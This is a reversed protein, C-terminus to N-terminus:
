FMAAEVQLYVRPVDRALKEDMGAYASEYQALKDRVLPVTEYAALGREVGEAVAQWLASLLDHLLTIGNVDTVTGHGPIVAAPKLQVLEPLLRIWQQLNSNNTSPMRDSYVVDGSLLVRSEPLWLLLDGPSHSDGSPLLVFTTGGLRERIKAEVPHTPVVIKSDGTAGRTMSNFSNVWNSGEARIQEIVTPSAYIREATDEFAANGLWHDGHAHSNVIWRVPKNTVTAITKKLAAGIHTSSGSDFLLVGQKTVVFASNANWGRNDPNPLERTPPIVAYVGPAVVQAQMVFDDTALLSFPACLASLLLVISYKKFM